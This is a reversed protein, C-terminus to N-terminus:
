NSSNIQELEAGVLVCVAAGSWIWAAELSEASSAGCGTGTCSVQVLAGDSVACFHKRINLHIELRIASFSFCHM